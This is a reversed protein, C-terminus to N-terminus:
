KIEWNILTKKHQQLYRNTESFHGNGFFRNGALPSPHVSQLILHKSSDILSSKGKAFNGWLLFVVNNCQMSIQSIVADTFSQWGIKRHSGPKKHEVTLMANLLLVGQEAWSTLDGHSPIDHGLDRKIEKYINILSPPTRIGKPVSFCLGMAENPNHYPDQGLIVVKLSSVPTLQFANFIQSGRPYIIKGAKKEKKLSNVLSHFYEKEFEKNLLEKWSPEIKVDISAM